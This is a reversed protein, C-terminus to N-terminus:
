TLKPEQGPIIVPHDRSIVDFERHRTTREAPRRAHGHEHGQHDDVERPVTSEAPNRPNPATEGHNRMYGTVM